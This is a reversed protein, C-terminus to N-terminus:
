PHPPPHNQATPDPCARCSTRCARVARGPAHAADPLPARLLFSPAGGLAARRFVLLLSLAFTSINFLGEPPAALNPWGVGPALQSLVGRMLLTEYTCVAAAILFVYALPALLGRAIRSRLVGAPAPRCPAPPQAAATADTALPAARAQPGGAGPPAM